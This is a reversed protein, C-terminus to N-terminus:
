ERLSSYTDFVFFCFLLCKSLKPSPLERRNQGHVEEMLAGWNVYNTAQCRPAACAAAPKNWAHNMALLTDCVLQPLPGRALIVAQMEERSCCMLKTENAKDASIPCAYMLALLNRLQDAGFEYVFELKEFEDSIQAWDSLSKPEQPAQKAEEQMVTLRSNSGISLKRKRGKSSSPM